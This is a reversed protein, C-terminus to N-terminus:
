YKIHYIHIIIVTELSSLEKLLVEELKWRDFNDENEIQLNNILDTILNAGEGENNLKAATTSVNTTSTNTSEM